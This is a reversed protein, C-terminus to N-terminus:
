IELGLRELLPEVHPDRGRFSRYTDIPDVSGGPALLTRRFWDGNERTGGGHEDFWAVADADMVQSWTYGYYGASYGSGWIHSFYTSRYRPPVLDFAVGWEQLARHEFAEVEDADAPLADLPTQHWAQDLLTAQMLELTGM